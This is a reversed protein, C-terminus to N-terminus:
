RAPCGEQRVTTRGRGDGYEIVISEVQIRVLRYRGDILEGETGYYTSRCDSMLAVKMGRKEVIGIFKLPIPPPPPPGIEPPPGPNTPPGTKSMPAPSPPPAKPQFRFPNREVSGAEPHAGRLAELRVDLDAPDIAAQPRRPGTRAQNSAPTHPAASNTPWMSTAVFVVVAVGLAVLLWPRPRSSVAPDESEM